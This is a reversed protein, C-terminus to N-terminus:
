PLVEQRRHGGPPIQANDGERANQNQRESSRLPRDARDALDKTNKDTGAAHRILQENQRRIEALEAAVREMAKTLPDLRALEAAGARGQAGAAHRFGLKLRALFEDFGTSEGGEILDMGFASELGMRRLAIALIKRKKEAELATIAKPGLASEHQFQADLVRIDDAIALEPIEKELQQREALLLGPRARRAIEKRFRAVDAVNPVLGALAEIQRQESFGAAKLKEPTDIGAAALALLREFQTADAVGLREFLKPEKGKRREKETLTGGVVSVDSLAIGAQKVFTDLQGTKQSGALVAAVAFGTDKDGFFKLGPAAGALVGPDRASLQGAVFAKRLAEGIEFGQSAGQVELERGVDIPIGLKTARFVAEAGEIGKEFDGERASQIAQITNLAEGRDTIGFRTALALAQSLRPAKTGAEQLAALSVIEGATKKAETSVEKLTDIFLKYERVALAIVAGPGVLALMKTKVGSIATALGGHAKGTKTAAGGSKELARASKGVEKTLAKVGGKLKQVSQAAKVFQRM